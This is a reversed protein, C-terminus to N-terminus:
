DNAYSYDYRPLDGINDLHVITPAFGVNSLQNLIFSNSGDGFSHLTAIVFVGSNSLKKLIDVDNFGIEDFIIVDPSMTRIAIEASIHKKCNSIVDCFPGLGFEYRGNYGAAIENREDSVLVKIKNSSLESAVDRLLTTKGSAPKGTILLHNRSNIFNEAIYKGYTKIHRAIRVNMSYIDNCSIIEGNNSFLGCVGVRHGNKLTLYGENIQNEFTFFSYNCMKKLCENFENRGVSTCNHPINSLGLDSLYYRDNLTIITIPQNVKIRIETVISKIKNPISNLKSKLSIDFYEAVENFRQM